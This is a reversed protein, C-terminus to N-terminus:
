GHSALHLRVQYFSFTISHLHQSYIM